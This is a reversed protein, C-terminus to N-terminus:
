RVGLSRLRKLYVASSLGPALSNMGHGVLVLEAASLMELVLM